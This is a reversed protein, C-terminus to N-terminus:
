HDCPAATFVGDGRGAWVIGGGPCAVVEFAMDDREARLRSGDDVVVDWGAAPLAARYHQLVDVDEEVVFRQDCGDIGTSVDGGFWGVHELSDFVAQYGQVAELAEGEFGETMCQPGAEYEGEAKQQLAWPSVALMGLVMLVPIAVATLRMWWRPSIVLALVAVLAVIILAVSSLGATFGWALGELATDTITGYVALFTYHALVGLVALFSAIVLVVVATVNRARGGQQAM